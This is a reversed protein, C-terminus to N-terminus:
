NPVRRSYFYRLLMPTRFIPRTKNKTQRRAEPMPLMQPIPPPTIMFGTMSMCPIMLTLSALKRDPSVTIAIAITLMMMRLFVLSSSIRM